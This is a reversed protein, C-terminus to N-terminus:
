GEIEGQIHQLCAITMDLVCKRSGSEGTTHENKWYSILFNLMDYSMWDSTSWTERPNPVFATSPVVPKEIKSQSKKKVTPHLRIALSSAPNHPDHSRLPVKAQHLIPYLQGPGKLSYTAMIQSTVDGRQYAEVIEQKKEDERLKSIRERNVKAKELENEDTMTIIQIEKMDIM